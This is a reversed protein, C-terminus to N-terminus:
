LEDAEYGVGVRLDPLKCDLIKHRVRGGLGSDELGVLKDRHSVQLDQYPIM